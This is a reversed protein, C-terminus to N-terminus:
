VSAAPERWVGATMVIKPHVPVGREGRAVQEALLEAAAAGLVGAQQDIGGLEPRSRTWNLTFHGPRQGAPLEALWDLCQQSPDIVAEPRAQRLWAFFDERAPRRVLRLLSGAQAAPLPHHTLFSAPWAGFMRDNVTRESYFGIRRFGRRRLARLLTMMGLFHHHHVRHLEPRAYGLGIVVSSFDEWRIPVRARSRSILPSLILGRIGRAVLIESLRRGSMGRAALQFEELRYGLATARRAAGELLELGWPSRVAAERRDSWIFALAPSEATRRGERLRAMLRTLEPDPQWGLETATALIRECLPAAVHHGGRLARSVTMRSVGVREAIEALSPSSMGTVTVTMWHNCAIAM